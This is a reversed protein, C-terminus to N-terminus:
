IPQALLRKTEENEYTKKEKSETRAFDFIFFQAKNQQRYIAPGDTCTREKSAKTQSRKM